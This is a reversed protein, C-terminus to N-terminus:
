KVNKKSLDVGLLDIFFMFLPIGLLLGWIGMFHESVILIIFTFFIPINTKDSMLKPNLFYSEIIHIVVIMILVYVIKLLGGIEFAILSLPILSIIVGAVPILSLIFIMAGLAILSPFGMFSLMIVSLATNFIAIILQAQIVKGFSNLFNKVFYELYTYISSVKSDKFRRIFDLINDKELMFFLSLIIALISNLGTKGADTALVVAYNLGVQTYKGIDFQQFMQTLYEGLITSNNPMNFNSVGNIISITQTVLLPIYKIVAVVVSIVMFLYLSITVLKPNVKVFKNINKVILEQISNIIYTIIFTLLVLDFISRITYCGIFLLILFLIRKITEKKFFQKFFEM